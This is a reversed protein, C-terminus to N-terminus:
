PLSPLNRSQTLDVRPQKCTPVRAGVVVHCCNDLRDSAEYVRSRARARGDPGRAQLSQMLSVALKSCILRAALHASADTAWGMRPDPDDRGQRQMPGM